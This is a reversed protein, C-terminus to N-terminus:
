DCDGWYSYALETSHFEIHERRDRTLTVYYTQWCPGWADQETCRCQFNIKILTKKRIGGAKEEPEIEQEVAYATEIEDVFIHERNAHERVAAGALQTADTSPLLRVVILPGIIMVLGVFLSLIDRKSMMWEGIGRQTPDQRALGVRKRTSVIDRNYLLPWM